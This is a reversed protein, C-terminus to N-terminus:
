LAQWGSLVPAEYGISLLPNRGVNKGSIASPVQRPKLQVLKSFECPDPFSTFHPLIMLYADTKLDDEWIFTMELGFTPRINEAVEINTIRDLSSQILLEQPGAKSPDNRIFRWTTLLLNV